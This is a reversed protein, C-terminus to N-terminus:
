NNICKKTVQQPPAVQGAEDGDSDSFRQVETITVAAAAPGFARVDEEKSKKVPSHRLKTVCPRGVSLDPLTPLAPLDDDSVDWNDVMVPSTQGMILVEENCQEDISVINMLATRKLSDSATGAATKVAMSGTGPVGLHVGNPLSAHTMQRVVEDDDSNDSIEHVEAPFKPRPQAACSSLSGSLADTDSASCGSSAQNEPVYKDCVFVNFLQDVAASGKVWRM